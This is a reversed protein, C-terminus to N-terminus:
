KEKDYYWGKERAAEEIKWQSMWLEIKDQTQENEKKLEEIKKENEELM